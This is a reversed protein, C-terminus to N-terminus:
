VGAEQQYPPTDTPLAPNQPVGPVVELPPTEAPPPPEAVPAADMPAADAPAEAVPAGGDAPAAQAEAAPADAQPEVKPPPNLLARADDIWRQILDRIEEPVGDQRARQNAASFIRIGLELAQGAEPPMYGKEGEDLIKDLTWRIDDIAANMLSSEADLDPMESLMAFTPKDILGKALWEELKQLKAGPHTPLMSVPYGKVVWAASKIFKAIAKFDIKELFKAGPMSVRVEYAGDNEEAAIAGMYVTKEALEVFAAEWDQGITIMRGQEQDRVTRLAEGSSLGAPKVANVSWESLGIERLGQQYTTQREEMLDRHIAQHQVLEPRGASAEYEVVVGIENTTLDDPNVKCGRPTMWKAAALKRASEDIADNHENLRVQFGILREVFGIGWLGLPKEEVRFFVVPFWDHEWREEMLTCGEIAIVHVGDKAGPKSPLRYMEYVPIEESDLGTDTPLDARSRCQLIASRKRETEEPTSGKGWTALVVAKDLNKYRGLEKGGHGYMWQRESFILETPLTREITTKGNEISLWFIGLGFTGADRFVQPAHREYVKNESWCGFVWKNAKLAQRQLGYDGGTTEFLVRPRNRVIMTEATTVASACINWSLYVEEWETRSNATDYLSTMLPQNYALKAYNLCSIHRQSLALEMRKAIAVMDPGCGEASGFKEFWRPNEKRPHTDLYETKVVVAM